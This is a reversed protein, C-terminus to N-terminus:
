LTDLYDAIRERSWHHTDNLHPVLDGVPRGNDCQPCARDIPGEPGDEPYGAVFASGLACVAVIPRGEAEAMYYIGEGDSCEFYETFSQKPILACGRRIAQALKHWQGVKPASTITLEKDSLYM